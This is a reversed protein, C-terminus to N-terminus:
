ISRQITPEVKEGYIIITRSIAMRAQERSMGYIEVMEDVGIVKGADLMLYCRKVWFDLPTEEEQKVSPMPKTELVEVPKIFVVPDPEKEKVVCNGNLPEMSYLYSQGCVKQYVVTGTDIFLQVIMMCIHRTLDTLDVLDELTIPEGYEKITKLVLDSKM